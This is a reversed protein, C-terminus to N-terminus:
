NAEFCYLRLLETCSAESDDVWNSSLQDSRGFNGNGETTQWDMCTKDAAKRGFRDCGTWALEGTASLAAKPGAARLAVTTPWLVTGDPRIWRINPEAVREIGDVTSTCLFAHWQRNTLAPLGKKIAQNACFADASKLTTTAPGALTGPLGDPTVFVFRDNCDRGGGDCAAPSRDDAADVAVEDGVPAADPTPAADGGAEVPDDTPSFSSCAVALPASLFLSVVLM